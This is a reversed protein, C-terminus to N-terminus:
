EIPDGDCAVTVIRSVSIPEVGCTSERQGPQSGGFASRSGLEEAELPPFGAPLDTDAEPIWYPEPWAWFTSGPRVEDPKPSNNPGDSSHDLM